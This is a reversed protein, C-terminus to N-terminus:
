VQEPSPTITARASSFGTVADVGEPRPGPRGGIAEYFARVARHHTFFARPELRAVESPTAGDLLLKICTDALSQRQISASVPVEGHGFIDVLEGEKGAHRGLRHIYDYMGEPNGLVRFSAKKLGVIRAGESAKGKPTMFRTPKTWGVMANVHLAGNDNYELCAFLYRLKGFEITKKWENYWDHFLDNQKELQLSEYKKPLAHFLNITFEGRRLQRAPEPLKSM